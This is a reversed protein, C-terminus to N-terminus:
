FRLLVLPSFALAFSIPKGVIWPVTIPKYIPMIIYFDYVVHKYPIKNCAHDVFCAPVREWNM